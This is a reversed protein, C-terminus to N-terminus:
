QDRDERLLEASDSYVRDQFMARVREIEPTLRAIPVDPLTADRLIRKVEDELRCGNLAAFKQLRALVEPEIEEIVVQAM